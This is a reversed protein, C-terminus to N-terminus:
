EHAEPTGHAGGLLYATLEGVTDVITEPGTAELADREGAGWTVAVGAMGAARAALIDVTADGVYVASTPDVGSRAAAALLPEADPKHRTTDELAGVVDILHDIGVGALALRATERRKSTVIHVNAGASTLDHADRARRCVAPHPARHERPEM